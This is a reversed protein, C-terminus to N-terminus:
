VVSKRDEAPLVDPTFFLTLQVPDNLAALVSEVSQFGYVVKKISSTLDYELNRLRVNITNDSNPTIELLDRFNIVVDQDGYRVLIDFYSNIVSAEYRGTVQFPFPQIGYTQNAEAELDPDSIPDVVEATVKGNGNIAYERLLDEIQPRLPNLLPHSKESIYGRILLPESLSSLLDKTTGSLSYQRQATLDVRMGHLPTVWVNLVILNIAVLAGFLAANRRYGLTRQGHSWRKGDVTLTNLLLFVGALSLYYILDRLDIVGRQISEFRSGTGVNRLVTSWPSGAYNVFAPTGVLYFLGGLIATLILAVIQNDTLSSIFLGIATYAAALLLAALYGGIVPGWDLPGLMAVSIAIPLTLLLAIVVLTMVALFKGVVLQWPKVPLTLLMELTGSRQEESWQRMTLAAVLFILLLPMWKFLPRIDAIGRAFFTEVWFFTFLTVALFVGLFILAMPSGFYSDLEKRTISLIQRM